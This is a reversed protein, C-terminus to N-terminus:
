TCAIISRDEKMQHGYDKSKNEYSQWFYVHCGSGLQTRVIPIPAKDSQPDTTEQLTYWHLASMVPTCHLQTHFVFVHVNLIHRYSHHVTTWEDVQHCTLIHSAWLLNMFSTEMLLINQYINGHVMVQFKNRSDMVNILQLLFLFDYIASMCNFLPIIHRLCYITYFLTYSNFFAFLWLYCVNQTDTSICSTLCRYVIYVLM